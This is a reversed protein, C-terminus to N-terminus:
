IGPTHIEVTPPSSDKDLVQDLRLFTFIEDCSDKCSNAFCYLIRREM